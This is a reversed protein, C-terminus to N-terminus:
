VRVARCLRSRALAAPIPAGGGAIVTSVTESSGDEFTYRVASTGDPIGLAGWDLRAMDPSRSATTGSTAIFSTAASGTEVQAGWAYVRATEPAGAVQSWLLIQASAAASEAAAVVSYRRWRTDITLTGSDSSDFRLALSPGAADARLWMSFCYSAGVVTDQVDASLRAYGDSRTFDIRDATATGDPATAASATVAPPVGAGGADALWRGGEFACSWALLNTAGPEILLAPPADGDPDHDIRAVDVGRTAVLGSTDICTAVSARTVAVGPPLPEASLDFGAGRAASSARGPAFGVGLGLAGM